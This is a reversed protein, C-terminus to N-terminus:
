EMDAFLQQYLIEDKNSHKNWYDLRMREQKTATTKMIQNTFLAPYEESWSEISYPFSKTTTIVLKRKLEEINIEYHIVEVGNLM